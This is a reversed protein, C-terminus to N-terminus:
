HVVPLDTALLLSERVSIIARHYQIKTIFLRWHGEAGAVPSNLHLDANIELRLAVAESDFGAGISCYPREVSKELM